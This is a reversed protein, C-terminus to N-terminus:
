QYEDNTNRTATHGFKTVSMTGSPDISLTQTWNTLLTSSQQFDSGVHWRVAIDWSVDGSSWPLNPANAYGSADYWSNDQGLPTWIGGGQLPAHILRLGSFYTNTFYGSKASPLGPTEWIEVQSFCVNTPLFLLKMEQGVAAMGSPWVNAFNSVFSANWAGTPELVNLGNNLTQGNPLTTTITVNAANSPATWVVDPWNTQAPSGASASWHTNTPLTPSFPYYTAAAVVSFNVYEGVGINTRITNTPIPSQCQPVFNYKCELPNCLYFSVSPAKPTVDIDEGDPLVIWVFRDTANQPLGDITVTQPPINTVDFISNDYWDQCVSEYCPMIEQALAELAHLSQHGSLSRGGTQLSFQSVAVESSASVALTNGNDISESYVTNGQLCPFSTTGLYESPPGMNAGVGCGANTSGGVQTTGLGNTAWQSQITTYHQSSVSGNTGYSTTCFNSQTSGGTAYFWNFTAQDEELSMLSFNPTWIQRTQGSWNDFFYSCYLSTQKDPASEALVADPAPPNGPNAVSSNTGSGTGNGNGDAPIDPIASAQIVATGAGNVPVNYATWPYDTGDWPYNTAMVGNVWVTYNTVNITGSVTIASQTTIPDIYTINLAVSSQVVYISNSTVNGKIDTATLILWNTGPALPLNDVWFNGNREIMGAVVNVDGNTDTIQASLTVTPDDVTGRWTFSSGSIQAGNQPWWLTVVPAPKNSYNLNFVFNSTTLNGALDAAHLTVTNAGSALVLDFCKFSNIQAAKAKL